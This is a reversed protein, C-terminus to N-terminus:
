GGLKRYAKKILRLDALPTYDKAYWYDVMQLSEAPLQQKVSVPVGNCAIVGKRLRPLNKEPVAYSIWTKQAIIIAFCNTFFSFPKKIVSLHVPFTILGALAVVVDILRKLRRNHPHSLKFGNEKTVFEGSKDKSHSGVISLSRDAHFKIATQVPLLQVADIIDKFSLGGECFILERFPVAASLTNIEKWHGIGSSDNAAISVRGLIREHLGTDKMLRLTKEYEEKSGVIVTNPHEIREKNNTLVHTRVLVWRLITILLFALLAGFLIIARSFRYHEPLLSYAALLVITAILASSILQSRKYWRDYLGAYYSIILYFLTFAPFSVWLL